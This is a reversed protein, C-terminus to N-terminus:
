LLALERRWADSVEATATAARLRLADRCETAAQEVARVWASTDAPSGVLLPSDPGYLQTLADCRPGVFPTGLEFCRIAIGSQYFRRYPILVAASTALLHDLRDEDVFEDSVAWGDIRPWGRGHIELSYRPALEVALDALLQIDRDPKFQGLVRIVPRETPVNGDTSECSHTTAQLPHAVIPSDVGFTTETIAEQATTSHVIVTRRRSLACGIRRAPASYGVARVLPVPDHMVLRTTRRRGLILRALVLDWYGLVPWALIVAGTPKARSVRFLASVYRRVWTFRSEDALSPEVLDVATVDHGSDTLNSKLTRAYHGLAGALPNIITVHPTPSM